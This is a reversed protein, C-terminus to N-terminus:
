SYFLKINKEFLELPFGVVNDFEGEVNVAFDFGEDQIGYSGAKDLPCKSIIYDKIESDNLDRFTVYTIQTDKIVKEGLMLCISTAVFHTKASLKKLTNFADKEDKPKGLIIKDLVVVTDASIIIHNNDNIKKYVDLAKKYACNEVLSNSFIKNSIHEDYDSPIIKFDYGNNKLIDKRRPSNSALILKKNLSNM